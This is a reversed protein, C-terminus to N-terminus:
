VCARSEKAQAAAVVQVVPHDLRAVGVQLDVKAVMEQHPHRPNPRSMRGAGAGTAGTRGHSRGKGATGGAGGSSWSRELDGEGDAGRREM